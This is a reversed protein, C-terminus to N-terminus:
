KGLKRLALGLVVVGSSAMYDLEEETFKSEKYTFKALPNLYEPKISLVKELGEVLGPTLSAGGTIVCKGVVMEQTTSVFFNLTKKIEDFVIDLNNKIIVVVEEPLNGNEDGRTKINEAEEYTLGLQRQIEETIVNGGIYMEKTFYISDNKMIILDTKHSGFNLVLIGMNKDEITPALSLEFINSIAFCDLDVIRVKLSAKQFINLYSLALSNKVAAIIVEAAGANNKSIISYSLTSDDIGFPIYQEAEWLVQDAMEEQKGEMISLRKTMTNIGSVGICINKNTINAKKLADAIAAVIDDIRTFEDEIRCSEPLFSYAFKVIKFEDKGKREIECVKVSHHGIDIGVLSKPGFGLMTILHDISDLINAKEEL